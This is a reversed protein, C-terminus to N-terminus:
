QQVYDLQQASLGGNLLAQAAAAERPLLKGTQGSLFSRLSEGPALWGM